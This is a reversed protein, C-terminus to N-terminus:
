NIAHCHFGAAGHWLFYLWDSHLFVTTYEVTDYGVKGHHVAIKNGGFNLLTKAETNETAHYLITICQKRATYWPVDWKDSSFVLSM